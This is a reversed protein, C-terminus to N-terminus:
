PQNAVVPVAEPAKKPFREKLRFAVFDLVRQLDQPEIFCVYSCIFLWEFMPLNISLDIGVHLMVGALLVWYRCEKVWILTWLCVEITLAMWTLLACIIQNDFLFPIPLGSLEQLRTAYYVATGAVWQPGALKAVSNQWYVIAIQIQLLRLAWPWYSEKLLEPFWRRKILRDVSLREGCQSMSLYLPVLRLLNDGGNINFPNQNHL